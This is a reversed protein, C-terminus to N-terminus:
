PSLTRGCRPCFGYESTVTAGCAPCRREGGSTPGPPPQAPLPPAPAAPPASFSYQPPAFAPADTAGSSGTRFIAAALFAMGVIILGVGALASASSANCLDTNCAPPEPIPILGAVLFALILGAFTIWYGILVRRRDIQV